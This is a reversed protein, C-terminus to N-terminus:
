SVSWKAPVFCAVLRTDGEQFEGPIVVAEAIAPIELLAREVEVVEIRHGRIKVQWDRRGLYEMCGDPLQRGLNGTHYIRAEGGSPDPRFVAQTREPQRWYGLVVTALLLTVCEFVEPQDILGTGNTKQAM